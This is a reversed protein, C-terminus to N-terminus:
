YLTKVPCHGLREMKNKPPVFLHCFQICKMVSWCGCLLLHMQLADHRHKNLILQHDPSHIASYRKQTSVLNFQSKRCKIELTHAPSTFETSRTTILIIQLPSAGTSVSYVPATHVLIQKRIQDSLTHM